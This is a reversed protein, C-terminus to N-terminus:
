LELHSRSAGGNMGQLEIGAAIGTWGLETGVVDLVQWPDSWEKRQVGPFVFCNWSFKMRWVGQSDQQPVGPSAGPIEGDEQVGFGRPQLTLQNFITAM